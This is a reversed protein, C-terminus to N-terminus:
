TIKQLVAFAAISQLFFLAGYLLSTVVTLTSSRGYKIFIYAALLSVLIFLGIIILFVINVISQLNEIEM